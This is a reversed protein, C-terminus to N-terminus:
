KKLKRLLNFGSEGIVSKVANTVKHKTDLKLHIMRRLAEDEDQHNTFIEFIIPKETLEPTTFLDVAEMYEEKNTASLYTFGLDEAYHKVLNHSKNGFHGGAAAYLNADDGLCYCNHIHLKFEGGIGNNVLLIRINNKIHRNGLSNMDYFFALDGTVLYCIRQPNVLSAGILSSTCGDIGCCGVNSSCDVGEPLPFMNWCRRTNSASIHFLAGKPLRSSLQQASWFNSFPLEPLGNYYDALILKYTDILDHKGSKPDAYKSFFLEEPMQFVKSLKRNPDRIEGDESVRWVEKATIGWFEAASVEGIRIMLDPVGLPSDADKQQTAITPIVKYRGNYGSTHDCIVIADYTACFADLAKTQKETFKRHSGCFVYVLGNPIQPLEDWACYRQITKVPPLELVSFDTSYSTFINIHVPGGGNRRLELLARNTERIAYEEDRLDKIVPLEIALKAIDHPIQRRDINQPVLQGIRDTGQHSTIALVPLKRYFAESLGPYYDRSATAGTCSLMVPEGSEAALGCAMYAASREDVSSYMEFWPDSQLSTVFSFNTTGPSAVIKKINHEKLLAILIQINRETSYHFEM